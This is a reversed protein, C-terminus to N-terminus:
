KKCTHSFPYKHVKGCTKCQWNEDILEMWKNGALDNVSQWTGIWAFGQKEIKPSDTISKIRMGITPRFGQMCCPYQQLKQRVFMAGAIFGYEAAIGASGGSNLKKIYDAAEVRIELETM